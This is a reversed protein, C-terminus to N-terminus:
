LLPRPQRKILEQLVSTKEKLDVELQGSKVARWMELYVEVMKRYIAVNANDDKLYMNISHLENSPHEGIATYCAEVYSTFLMFPIRVIGERNISGWTSYIKSTEFELYKELGEISMVSNAYVDTLFDYFKMNLLHDLEKCFDKSEKDLIIQPVVINSFCIITNPQLHKIEHEVVSALYGKEFITIIDDIVDVCTSIHVLVKGGNENIRITFDKQRKDEIILWIKRSPLQRHFETKLTELWENPFVWKEPNQVRVKM